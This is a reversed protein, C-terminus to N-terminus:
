LVNKNNNQFTNQNTKGTNQKKENILSSLNNLIKQSQTLPLNSNSNQLIM